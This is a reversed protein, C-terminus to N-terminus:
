ATPAIAGLREEIEAVERELAPDTNGARQSLRIAKAV